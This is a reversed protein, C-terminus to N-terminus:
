HLVIDGEMVDSQKWEPLINAIARNTEVNTVRIKAVLKGSRNVLMEGRPVLGDQEGIDLVVFDWKPDVAVVKGKLGAPLAPPPTTDGVFKFLEEKLTGIQRVMVKKEEELADNAIRAKELEALRSRIAEVPIGLAQFAALDRTTKTLDTRTDNLEGELKNARAEQQRWNTTATELNSQTEALETATKEALAKSEAAAKKAAEESTRSADLQTQTEALTTKLGEIEGALKLHTLVLTAVSALIAVILSVKLLM